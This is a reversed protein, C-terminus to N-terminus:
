TEDELNRPRMAGIETTIENTSDEIAQRLTVITANFNSIARVSHSM